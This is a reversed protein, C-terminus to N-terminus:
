ERRRLNHKRGRTRNVPITEAPNILTTIRQKRHRIVLRSVVASLVMQSLLWTGYIVVISLGDGIPKDGVLYFVGHIIPVLLIAIMFNTFVIICSQAAIKQRTDETM